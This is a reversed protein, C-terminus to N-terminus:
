DMAQHLADLDTAEDGCGHSPTQVGTKQKPTDIDIVGGCANRHFYNNYIIKNMPFLNAHLLSKCLHM